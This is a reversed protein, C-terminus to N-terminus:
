RYGIAKLPSVRGILGIPIILILMTLVIAGLNILLVTPLHIHIPAVKLYYDQENLKLVKGYKQIWCILFGIVNGWGIGKLLIQFAHILFISKLARNKMGLAKFTGIMRTRELILILLVTILNISAVVLMLAQIVYQNTNQLNLWDFISPFKQRITEIFMDQNLHNEYIQDAISDSQSIDNLFLEYGGIQDPKWNALKRIEDINCLALKQDYEELGTNYIASIYYTRPIVEQNIVFNVRSKEGATLKLRNALSQSLMLNHHSSDRFAAVSGSVLYKEFFAWDFDNGIGKLILGDMEEGATIVAPIFAFTQHHRIGPISDLAKVFLSDYGIPHSVNMQSSHISNIQIHGWFGFIKDSIEKNFGTIVANAVIMVSISLATCIYALRLIFRVFSGREYNMLRRAIDWHNM